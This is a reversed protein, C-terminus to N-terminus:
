AAPDVLARTATDILAMLSQLRAMEQVLGEFDEQAQGFRLALIKRNQHSVGCQSITEAESLLALGLERLAALRDQSQVVDTRRAEADTLVLSMLPDSELPLVRIGSAAARLKNMVDFRVRLDLGLVRWTDPGFAVRQNQADVWVYGLEDLVDIVYYSWGSATNRISQRNWNVQACLNRLRASDSAM